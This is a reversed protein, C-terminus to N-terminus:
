NSVNSIAKQGDSGRRHINNHFRAMPRPRSAAKLGVSQELLYDLFVAQGNM